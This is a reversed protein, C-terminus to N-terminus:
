EVKLVQGFSLQIRSGAKGSYKGFFPIEQNDFKGRYQLVAWSYFETAYDVNDHAKAVLNTYITSFVNGFAIGLGQDQSAKDNGVLNALFQNFGGVEKNLLRFRELRQGPATHKMLAQVGWNFARGGVAAVGIETGVQWIFNPDKVYEGTHPDTSGANYVAGWGFAAGAETDINNRVNNFAAILDYPRDAINKALNFQARRAKVINEASTEANELRALESDQDRRLQFADSYRDIATEFRDTAEIEADIAATRDQDLYRLDSQLVQVKGTLDAVEAAASDRANLASTFDSRASREAVSATKLTERAQVVIDSNAANGAAVLEEYRGKANMWEDYLPQYTSSAQFLENERGQLSTNELDLDQRAQALEASKSNYAVDADIRDATALELNQKQAVVNSSLRGLTPDRRIYEALNTEATELNSQAAKLNSDAHRYSVVENKPIDTGEFPAAERGTHPRLWNAIQYGFSNEANGTKSALAVSSRYDWEPTFGGIKNGDADRARPGLFNFHFDKIGYFGIEAAWVDGRRPLRAWTQAVGLLGNAANGAVNVGRQLRAVATEGMWNASRVVGNAVYSIGRAVTGYRGDPAVATQQRLRLGFKMNGHDDTEGNFHIFARFQRVTAGPGVSLNLEVAVDFRAHDIFFQKADSASLKQPADTPAASPTGSPADTSQLQRPAHYLEGDIVQYGSSELLRRGDDTETLANLYDQQFKEPNELLEAIEPNQEILGDLGMEQVAEPVFKLDALENVVQFAAGIGGTVTSLLNALAEASVAGAYDGTGTAADRMDELVALDNDNWGGPDDGSGGLAILKDVSDNVFQLAAADGSQVMEQLTGIVNYAGSQEMEDMTITGDFLKGIMGADVGSIEALQDVLLQREEGQVINQNAALFPLAAQAKEPDMSAILTEFTQLGVKDLYAAADEPDMQDLLEGAKEHSFHSLAFEGLETANAPNDFAAFPNTLYENIQDIQARATSSSAAYDLYPQEDLTGDHYDGALEHKVVLSIDGTNRLVAVLIQDTIDFPNGSAEGLRRPGNDAQLEDLANLLTLQTDQSVSTLITAALDANQATGDPAGRFSFATYLLHAGLDPSSEAVKELITGFDQRFIEPQTSALDFLADAVPGSTDLPNAAAGDATQTRGLNTAQEFTLVDAAVEPSMIRLAQLMLGQKGSNEVAVLADYKQAASPLAEVYVAVGAADGAAILSNLQGEDQFGDRYHALESRLQEPLLDLVQEQVAASSARDDFLLAGAAEVGVNKRTAVVQTALNIAALHEKMSLGGDQAVAPVADGTTTVTVKDGSTAAQFVDLGVAGATAYGAGNAGLAQWFAPDSGSQRSLMQVAQEKTLKGDEVLEFLAGKLSPTGGASTLKQYSQELLKTGEEATFELGAETAVVRAAALQAADAGLTVVNFAATLGTMVRADNIDRRTDALVSDVNETSRGRAQLFDRVMDATGTAQEKNGSGLWERGTHDPHLPRSQAWHASVRVVDTIGQVKGFVSYIDSAGSGGIGLSSNMFSIAEGDTMSSSTAEPGGQLLPELRTGTRGLGYSTTEVAAANHEHYLAYAQAVRAMVDGGSVLSGQADYVPTQTADYVALAKEVWVLKALNPDEITPPLITIEGSEHLAVLNDHQASSLETKEVVEGTAKDIYSLSYENAGVEANDPATVYDSQINSTGLQIEGDKHQQLLVDLEEQTAVVHTSEGDRTYVVDYLPHDEVLSASDLDAASPGTWLGKGDLEAMVDAGVWLLAKVLSDNTLDQETFLGNTVSDPSTVGSALADQWQTDAAISTTGTQMVETELATVFATEAAQESPAFILAPGEADTVDRGGEPQEAANAQVSSFLQAADKIVNQMTAPDVGEFMSVDLTASLKGDADLNKEFFAAMQADTVQADAGLYVGSTYAFVDEATVKPVEGGAASTMGQWLVAVRESGADFAQEEATAGTVKGDVERLRRGEPAPAAGAVANVDAGIGAGDLGVYGHPSYGSSHQAFIEGLVGDGVAGDEVVKIGMVKGALEEGLGERLNAAFQTGSGGGAGAWDFSQLAALEDVSFQAGGFDVEVERGDALAVTTGTAVPTVTGPTSEQYDGAAPVPIDSGGVTVLGQMSAATEQGVSRQAAAADVPARASGSRDARAAESDTRSVVYNDGSSDTM